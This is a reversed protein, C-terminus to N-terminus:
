SNLQKIIHMIFWGIVIGTWAFATICLLVDPWHSTKKYFVHLEIIYIWRALSIGLLLVSVQFVFLSTMIHRKHHPSYKM